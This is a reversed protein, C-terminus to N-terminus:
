LTHCQTPTRRESFRQIKSRSVCVFPRLALDGPLGSTSSPLFTLSFVSLATSFLFSFLGTPKLYSDLSPCLWWFSATSSPQKLLSSLWCFDSLHSSLGTSRCLGTLWRSFIDTNSTAQSFKTRTYAWTLECFTCHWLSVREQAQLQGLDTNTRKNKEEVRETTSQTATFFHTIGRSPPSLFWM